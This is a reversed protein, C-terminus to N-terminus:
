QKIRSAQGPQRPKGDKTVAPVQTVRVDQEIDEKYPVVSKTVRSPISRQPTPIGEGTAPLQKFYEQVQRSFEEMGRRTTLNPLGARQLLFAQRDPSAGRLQQVLQQFAEMGGVRNALYRLAALGGETTTEGPAAIDYELLEAQATNKPSQYKEREVPSETAPEIIDFFEKIAQGEETRLIHATDVAPAVVREKRSKASPGERQVAEESIDEDIDEYDGFASKTVDREEAQKRREARQQLDFDPTFPTAQQGQLEQDVGGALQELQDKFEARQQGASPAASLETQAAALQQNVGALDREIRALVETEEKIASGLDYTVSTGEVSRRQVKTSPHKASLEQLRAMEQQSAARQNELEQKKSAFIGVRQEPTLSPGAATKTPAIQKVTKRPAKEPAGFVDTLSEAQETGVDPAPKEGRFMDGQMGRAAGRSQVAAVAEATRQEERKLALEAVKEPNNFGEEPTLGVLPANTRGWVGNDINQAVRNQFRQLQEQLYQVSKQPDGRGIALARTTLDLVDKRGGFLDGRMGRAEGAAPTTTGILGQNARSRILTQIAEGGEFTPTKLQEALQRNKIWFSNSDVISAIDRTILEAQKIQAPGAGSKYVDALEQRLTNYQDQFTDVQDWTALPTVAGPQQGEGAPPQGVDAPTSVVRTSKAGAPRGSPQEAGAVGAVGAGAGGTLEFPEAVDEEEAFKGGLLSKEDLKFPELPKEAARGFAVDSAGTIVGGGIGGKLSADIFRVLNKENFFNPNDAVFAEAAASSMEQVAETGGETLFGKGLGAAGRKYWAGIIEQSPIGAAGAKRLLQVPLIADLVSNFGGAVLAAGLDEKGTEELINQYVEPVNQAASGALAGVAQYKLATRQAAKLGEDLAAKRIGQLTADTLAGSAAARAVERAAVGEAAQVAAAVAPRALLSAAGGTFLSPLLSPIAEGVAETIYTVADGVGKIDTFSPVAAPYKEQIEKQTAAAEALQREAYEDAGVLRGFMAPAIDGFLMGTQMASRKISPIFGTEPVPAPAPTPEFLPTEPGSSLFQSLLFSADQNTLGPPGDFKYMRGDPGKARYQAM